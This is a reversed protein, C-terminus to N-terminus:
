NISYLSIIATQESIWVFCMFVSHPCFTSNKLTIGPPVSLSWPAKYINLLRPSMFCLRAIPTTNSYQLSWIPFAGYPRDCRAQDRSTAETRSDCGQTTNAMRCPLFIPVLTQGQCHDAPLDHSIHRHSVSMACFQHLSAEARGKDPITSDVSFHYLRYEVATSYQYSVALQRHSKATVIHVVWKLTCFLWMKAVCHIQANKIIGWLTQLREPAWGTLIFRGPRSAVDTWHQPSYLPSGYRRARM